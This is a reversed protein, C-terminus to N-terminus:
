LSLRFSNGQHLRRLSEAQYGEPGPMDLYEKKFIEILLFFM